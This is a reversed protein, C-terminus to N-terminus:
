WIIVFLCGLDLGGQVDEPHDLVGAAAISLPHARAVVPVRIGRLGIGFLGFLEEERMWRSIDIAKDL